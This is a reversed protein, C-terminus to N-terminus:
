DQKVCSYSLSCREGLRPQLVLGKSLLKKKRLIIRHKPEKQTWDGLTDSRLFYNLQGPTRQIQWALGQPVPHQKQCFAPWCCGSPTQAEPLAIHKVWFSYYQLLSHPIVSWFGVVCLQEVACTFISVFLFYSVSVNEKECKGMNSQCWTKMHECWSKKQRHYPTLSIDLFLFDDFRCWCLVSHM